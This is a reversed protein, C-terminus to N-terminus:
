TLQAVLEDLITATLGEVTGPRQLLLSIAECNTLVSANSIKEAQAYMDRNWRAHAVRVHETLVDKTLKM